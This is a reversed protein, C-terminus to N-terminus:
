QKKMQRLKIETMVKKTYLPFEGNMMWNFYSPENKLVEEVPKGSHKGFNFVEVGNEDLVIRGAFDVNRTQSSFEALQNMDNELEEYRDLQSKLIEYTAHTDAEASHADELTKNCYFRYAATLTRPEMKYFINQVDVIKSRKLDFDVDARLFEEALVPVDFKAANYGAVDCGEMFHAINKAVQAFTPCDAVDENTIGHIETAREGIPIEPNVRVTLRDKKGGPDIKLISIEVIRDTAINLGTTELDFFVIPKKLILEM